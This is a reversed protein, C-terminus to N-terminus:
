DDDKILNDLIYDLYKTKKTNIYEAFTNSMVEIIIKLM